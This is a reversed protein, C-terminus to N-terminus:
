NRGYLAEYPAMEISSHNNNNYAFEILPLKTEIAKQFSKWFRSIFRPDKDSLISAQVGQLRMINEMYMIALKDLIEDHGRKSKPLGAVFDMFFNDWKWKPIELPQLLGGPRQYKAKVQQRTLCRVKRCGLGGKSADSYITINKGDEPLVLVPLLHLSRKLSKSVKRVHTNPRPWDKIAEVKNPDVSVGLESIIHGFFAVSKLWIECKKFQAYLKKERLTLLALCLHERHDEESLSYVLIDDICVVLFKDLYPKLVRNMHDM